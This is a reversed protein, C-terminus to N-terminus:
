CTVCRIRASSSGFCCAAPSSHSFLQAIWGGILFGVLIGVHPGLAFIAMATGRREVPYLDSIMSHSPPNTGGEGIAVGIRALLFQWYSVALGCIATMVSFLVLSWNIIRTRDARDAIRAIPIGVTTYLVAFAFGYLVGVETDSLILDRKIPEALIAEIGDEAPM